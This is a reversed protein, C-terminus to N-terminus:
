AILDKQGIENLSGSFTTMQGNVRLIKTKELGNGGKRKRELELCLVLDHLFHLFVPIDFHPLM